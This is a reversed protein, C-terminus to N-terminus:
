YCRTHIGFRNAGSVIEGCPRAQGKQGQFDMHRYIEKGAYIECIIVKACDRSLVDNFVINLRNFFQTLIADFIVFYM